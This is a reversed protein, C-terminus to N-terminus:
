EQPNIVQYVSGYSLGTERCINRYSKGDARLALIREKAQDTVKKPAGLKVGRQKAAELGAKVRDVITQREIEAIEAFAALMTRRFPNDTGLNLVPQTVSIFGCGVQDLSLLIHIAEQASRSLRDLRYVVITDFKGAFAKQLMKQYEPREATGGSIALDQFVKTSTPKKTEPLQALWEEVANKQSDLDQHTTSVRYYIAVKNM